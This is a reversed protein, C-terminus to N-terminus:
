SYVRRRLYALDRIIQSRHVLVNLILFEHLEAFLFVAISM